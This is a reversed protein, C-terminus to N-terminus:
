FWVLFLTTFLLMSYLVLRRTAQTRFMPQNAHTRTLSTRPALKVAGARGKNLEGTTIGTGSSVGQRETYREAPRFM